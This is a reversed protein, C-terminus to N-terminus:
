EVLAGGGGEVCDAAFEGLQRGLDILASAAAAVQTLLCKIELEECLGLFMESPTKLISECSFEMLAKIIREKM